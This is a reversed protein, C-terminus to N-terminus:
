YGFCSAGAALSYMKVMGSVCIGALWTMWGVRCIWAVVLPCCCCDLPCSVEKMTISSWCAQGKLGSVKVILGVFCKLGLDTKEAVPLFTLM